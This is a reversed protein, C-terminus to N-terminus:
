EFIIDSFSVFKCLVTIFKLTDAFTGTMCTKEVLMFRWKVSDWMVM